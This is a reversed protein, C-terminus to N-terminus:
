SRLILQFFRPDISLDGVGEVGKVCSLCSGIFQHHLAVGDDTQLAVADVSGVGSSAVAFSPFLVCAVREVSRINM